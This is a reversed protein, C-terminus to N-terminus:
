LFSFSGPIIHSVQLPPFLDNCATSGGTMGCVTFWMNHYVLIETMPVDQKNGPHTSFSQIWTPFLILDM